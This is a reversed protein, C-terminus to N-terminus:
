KLITLQMKSSIVKRGNTLLTIDKIGRRQQISLESHKSAASENEM